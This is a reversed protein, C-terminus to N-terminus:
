KQAGQLATTLDALVKLLHDRQRASMRTTLYLTIANLAQGAAVRLADMEAAQADVASQLEAQFLDREAYNATRWRGALQMITNVSTAAESMM